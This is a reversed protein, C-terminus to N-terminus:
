PIQRLALQYRRDKGKELIPQQVLLGTHNAKGAAFQTILLEALLEHLSSFFKGVALPVLLGPIFEGRPQKILAAAVVVLLVKQRKALPQLLQAFVPLHRLVEQKIEGRWGFLEGLHGRLKILRPQAPPPFAAPLAAPRAQDNFFREARVQLARLLEVLLQPLVEILPLDKADVVVQALLRHLVQHNQAKGVRNKLRHPIVLVDVVHLDGHRLRLAHARPGRIVVVRPGQAVHELVM